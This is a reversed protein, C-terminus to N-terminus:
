SAATPDGWDWRRNGHTSDPLGVFKRTYVQQTGDWGIEFDGIPVAKFVHVWESTDTSVVNASIPKLIIEKALNDALARAGTNLNGRLVQKTPDMSDTVVYTGPMVSALKSLSLEAFPIDVECGEGDYVLESIGQGLQDAKLEVAIESRRFKVGGVTAGMVTGGILVECRGLVLNTLTVQPAAM